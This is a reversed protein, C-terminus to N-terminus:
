HLDAPLKGGNAAFKSMVEKHLWMNMTASDGTDGTYHLESALEKRATLSSDMDLLKMLDVISHRWDLQQGAKSEMGDLVQAVDVNGGAAPTATSTSGAEPSPASSVPPPASATSGTNSAQTQAPQSPATAAGAAAEAHGFVKSMITGFISM